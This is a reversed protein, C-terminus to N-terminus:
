VGRRDHDRFPCLHLALDNRLFQRDAAMDLAGDMGVADLQSAGSNNLAINEM